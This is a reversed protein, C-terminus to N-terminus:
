QAYRKYLKLIIRRKKLKGGKIYNTPSTRNDEITVRNDSWLTIFISREVFKKDFHSDVNITYRDFYNNINYKLSPTLNANLFNYQHETISKSIQEDDNYFISISKNTIVVSNSGDKINIQNADKVFNITQKPSPMLFPSIPTQSYSVRPANTTSSRSPSLLPSIFAM